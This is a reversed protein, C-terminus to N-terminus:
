TRKPLLGRLLKSIGLVRSSNLSKLDKKQAHHEWFTRNIVSEYQQWFERLEMGGNQAAVTMVELIALPLAESCKANDHIRYAALTEPVIQMETKECFRQWLDLDMAYHLHSKVGGVEKWLNASWFTSQQAFWNKMWNAFATAPAWTMNRYGDPADHNKFIRGASDILKCGGHLLHLKDNASFYRAVTELSGPELLDDSNIWCYIDGTAKDFGKTIAHSQGKDKESVWYSIHASYKKIIDVSNDTSGGDILIYELGPYGQDLVSNITGELYNGQNFSPTIVSIRKPM